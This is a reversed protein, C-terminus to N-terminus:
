GGGRQGPAVVDSLWDLLMQAAHRWPRDLPMDHGCGSIERYDAGIRAALRRQMQPTFFRDEDPALVLTPTDGLPTPPATLTMDRFLTPSAGILREHCAKVTEEPTAPTFLAERTLAPTGVLHILDRRLNAKCLVFPHRRGFRVMVGVPYRGPIPALLVAAPFTQEAVLHQILLGGLSHGVLVPTSEFTDIARRLDELHDIIRTERYSGESAGHGRLDLTYADWGRAAFLSLWNEWVWSSHWAGHLLLLSPKGEAGNAGNQHKISLRPGAVTQTHKSM